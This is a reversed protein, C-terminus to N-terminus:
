AAQVTTTPGAQPSLVKVKSSNVRKVAPLKVSKQAVSKTEVVPELLKERLVVAEHLWDPALPRTVVSSRRRVKRTKTMLQALAVEFAAKVTKATVTFNRDAKRCLLRGEAIRLGLDRNLKDAPSKFSFAVRFRTKNPLPRAVVCVQGVGRVKRAPKNGEPEAFASAPVRFFQHLIKESNTTM